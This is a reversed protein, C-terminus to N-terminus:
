ADQDTISQLTEKIVREIFDNRVAKHKELTKIVKNKYEADDDEFLFNDLTDKLRVNLHQLADKLSSNLAEELDNIQTTLRDRESRKLTAEQQIRRTVQETAADIRATTGLMKDEYSQNTQELKYKADNIAKQKNDDLQDLVAQIEKAKQDATEQNQHLTEQLVNEYHESENQHIKHEYELINKADSLKTTLKELKEKYRTELTAIRSAYTENLRNMKHTFEQNLIELDGEFSAEIDKRKTELVQIQQRIDNLTSTIPELKKQLAEQKLSKVDELAKEKDIKLQELKSYLPKLAEQYTNEAQTLAIKHQEKAHEVMFTDNEYLSKFLSAITTKVTKTEQVLREELLNSLTSVIHKINQITTHQESNIIERADKLRPILLDSLQQKQKELHKLTKELSQTEKQVKSLRRKDSLSTDNEIHKVTVNHIFTYSEETIQYITQVYEEVSRIYPKAILLLLNKLKPDHETLALKTTKLSEFVTPEVSEIQQIRHNRLVKIEKIQQKPQLTEKELARNIFAVKEHHKRESEKIEDHAAQLAEDYSAEREKYTNTYHREIQEILQREKDLSIHLLQTQHDIDTRIQMTKEAIEKEVELQNLKHEKELNLQEIQHEIEQKKQDLSRKKKAISLEHEIHNKRLAFILDSYTDKAKLELLIEQHRQKAIFDEYKHLEQVYDLENIQKQEEIHSQNEANKIDLDHNLKATRMDYRIGYNEQEIKLKVKSVEIEKLPEVTDLYMSIEDILIIKPIMAQTTEIIHNIREQEYASFVDFTSKFFDKFRQLTTSNHYTKLTTTHNDFVNKFHDELLSLHTKFHQHIDKLFSNQTDVTENIITRVQTFRSDFYQIDTDMLVTLDKTNDILTDRRMEAIKLRTKHDKIEKADLPDEENNIINTTRVHEIDYDVEIRKILDQCDNKFTAQFAKLNNEIEVFPGNFREHVTYIHTTIKKITQNLIKRQNNILSLIAKLNQDNIGFQNEYASNLETELDNLSQNFEDILPSIHKEKYKLETLRELSLQFKKETEKQNKSLNKKFLNLKDEFIATNESFSKEIEKLALQKEQELEDRENELLLLSKKHNLKIAEIREKQRRKLDKLEKERNQKGQLHNAKLDNEKQDFLTEHTKKEKVFVREKQEFEKESKQTLADYDKNIKELSAYASKLKQNYTKETDYRAKDIAGTTKFVNKLM